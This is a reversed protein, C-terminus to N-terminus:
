APRRGRVGLTVLSGILFSLAAAAFLARYGDVGGGFRALLSYGIFPAIVAPLNQAIGWIGLDRGIDGLAPMADIALAWGVANLGGYGLGFLVAFGLIYEVRPVAAFGIAALTMPIGSAAVVWKRPFRDSLIGLFVSSLVAGLLGFTGVFATGAPADHIKLIDSFFYFVFTYLLSLGLAIWARAAFVLAFDHWDRVVAREGSALSSQERIPWLTLAGLAMAVATIVFVAGPSAVAGIGFGALTGILVAVGRVGSAAGWASRPVIEPLMASYAAFAVNFGVTAVIMLASLSAVSQASPLMALAVLDVAIGLLVAARRSGGRKRWSDSLAGAVPLVVMPVVSVASTILALAHTHERPDLRLLVAPVAILMLVTDQIFLPVWLANLIVSARLSYNPADATGVAQV